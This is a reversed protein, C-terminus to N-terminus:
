GRDTISHLCYGSQTVADKKQNESPQEIQSAPETSAVPETTANPSETSMDMEMERVLPALNILWIIELFADKKTM